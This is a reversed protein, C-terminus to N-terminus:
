AKLSFLPGVPTGGNAYNLTATPAVATAPAAGYPTDVYHFNPNVSLTAGPATFTGLMAHNALFETAVHTPGAANVSPIMGYMTAATEYWEAGWYLGPTAAWSSTLVRSASAATLTIEGFDKALTGPGGAAGDDKFVMLRLKETDDGAGGNFTQAGAFTRSHFIPLPFYYCRNITTTFTASTPAFGAPMYFCNTIYKPPSQNGYYGSGGSLGFKQGIEAM